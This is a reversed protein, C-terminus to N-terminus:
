LIPSLLCHRAPPFHPRDSWFLLNSPLLNPRLLSWVRGANLCYFTSRNTTPSHLRPSSYTTRPTCRPGRPASAKHLVEGKLCIQFQVFGVRSRLTQPNLENGPCSCLGKPSVRNLTKIYDTQFIHQEPVNTQLHTTWLCTWHVQRKSVVIGQFCRTPWHKNTISWCHKEPSSATKVTTSPINRLM